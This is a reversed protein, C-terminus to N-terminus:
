DAMREAVYKADPDFRYRELESRMEIDIGTPGARNKEISLVVHNRFTEAKVADYALHVESVANRKANLMLAIDAEYALSGSGRLHHMRARQGDLIREDCAAASIVPLDHAMALEKLGAVVRILREADSPPEPHVAVRQLYDVFLVPERVSSVLADLAHLDTHVASGRLLRLNDGLGHLEKRAADLVGGTSAQEPAGALFSPAAARIADPAFLEGGPVEAAQQILLREILVEVDHEYCVVVATKGSAAVTRAWQLMMATKGVGPPGGLLVLEGSRVGGGLNRDLLSVGLPQPRAAAQLRVTDGNGLLEGIGAPQPTAMGKGVPNTDEAGGPAGSGATAATGVPDHEPPLAPNM